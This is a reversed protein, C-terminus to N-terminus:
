WISVEGGRTVAIISELLEKQHGFADLLDETSVSDYDPTLSFTGALARQRADIAEAITPHRARLVALATELADAMANANAAAIYCESQLDEDDVDPQEADGFGKENDGSGEAEPPQRYEIGSSDWGFRTALLVLNCWGAYTIDVGDCDSELYHGM